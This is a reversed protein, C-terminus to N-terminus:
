VGSELIDIAPLGGATLPMAARMAGTLQQWSMLLVDTAPAALTDTPRETSDVANIGRAVADGTAL